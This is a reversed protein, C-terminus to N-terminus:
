GVMYGFVASLDDDLPALEQLGGPWRAALETLRRYFERDGSVAVELGDAVVVVAAVEPWPLM